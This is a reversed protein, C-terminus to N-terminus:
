KLDFIMLPTPHPNDLLQKQNDLPFYIAYNRFLGQIGLIMTSTQLVLDTKKDV